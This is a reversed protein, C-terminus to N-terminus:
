FLHPTNEKTVNPMVLFVCPIELYLNKRDTSGSKAYLEDLRAKLESRLMSWLILSLYFLVITRFCVRYLEFTMKFLVYPSSSFYCDGM